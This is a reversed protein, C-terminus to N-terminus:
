KNFKILNVINQLNFLMLLAANNIYNIKLPPGLLFGSNRLFKKWFKKWSNAFVNVTNHCAYYCAMISKRSSDNAFFTIKQYFDNEFFTM